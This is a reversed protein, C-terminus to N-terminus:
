VHYGESKMNGKFLPMYNRTYWDSFSYYDKYFLSQSNQANFSENGSLDLQYLIWKLYLSSYPEPAILEKESDNVGYGNFDCDESGEHVDVIERKIKWEIENLWEIIMDNTLIGENRLNQAKEIVNQVTM